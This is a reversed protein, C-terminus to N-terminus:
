KRKPSMPIVDPDDDDDNCGIPQIIKEFYSKEEPNLRSGKPTSNYKSHKKLENIIDTSDKADLYKVLFSIAIYNDNDQLSKFLQIFDKGNFTSLFDCLHNKDKRYVSLPITCLTNTIWEIDWCDSSSKKNKISSAIFSFVTILCPIQKDTKLAQVIKKIMEEENRKLLFPILDNFYNNPIENFGKPIQRDIFDILLDDNESSSHRFVLRLVHILNNQLPFCQQAREAVRKADFSFKGIEEEKNKILRTDLYEAFASVEKNDPNTGIITSFFCTIYSGFEEPNISRSEEKILPLISKLSISSETNKKTTKYNQYIAEFIPKTDPIEKTIDRQCDSVEKLNGERWCLSIYKKFSEKKMVESAREKIDKKFFLPLTSLYSPSNSLLILDCINEFYGKTLDSELTGFIQLLIKLNIDNLVNKKSILQIKEYIAKANIQELHRLKTYCKLIDEYFQLFQYIRSSDETMQNAKNYAYNIHEQFDSKIFNTCNEFLREKKEKDIIRTFSRYFQLTQKRYESDSKIFYFIFCNPSHKVIASVLALHSKIADLVHQYFNKLFVHSKDKILEELESQFNPKDNTLFKLINDIKVEDTEQNSNTAASIVLSLQGPEKRPPQYTPEKRLKSANLTTTTSLLSKKLSPHATSTKSSESFNNKSYDFFSTSYGGKKKSKNENYERMMKKFPTYHLNSKTIMSEFDNFTSLDVDDLKGILEQIISFLDSFNLSAFLQPRSETYALTIIEMIKHYIITFPDEIIDDDNMSQYLQILNLKKNKFYKDINEKIIDHIMEYIRPTQRFSYVNGKLLELIPICISIDDKSCCVIIDCLGEIIEDHSANLLNEYVKRVQNYLYYLSEKQQNYKEIREVLDEAFEKSQKDFQSHCLVNNFFTISLTVDRQISRVFNIVPETFMSQTHKFALNDNLIFDINVKDTYDLEKFFSVINNKDNVKPESKSNDVEEEGTEVEDVNLIFDEKIYFLVYASSSQQQSGYAASEVDETSIPCVEIDNFKWWQSNPKNAKKKIFSTYHGGIATGSHIVIGVLKYNTNTPNQSIKDINLDTPFTFRDNLKKREYTKMLYEFRKLHIVLIPPAEEIKVSKYVTISKNTADDQMQLEETAIISQLSEELNKMDKIPVSLDIFAESDPHIVDGNKRTIINILKGTFLKKIPGPLADILFGFFEVADHQERTNILEGLWGHWQKIFPETDCFKRDSYHMQLFLSQLLNLESDKPFKYTSMLYQVPYLHYLQQIISNFFCTAGLNRLGIFPSERMFLEPSYNWHDDIDKNSSFLKELYDETVQTHCLKINDILKQQTNPDSNTFVISVLLEEHKKTIEKLEENKKSFTNTIMFIIEVLDDISPKVEDWKLMSCCHNLFSSDYILPPVQFDKKSEIDKIITSITKSLLKVYFPLNIQNPELSQTAIEFLYKPDLNLSKAYKNWSRRSVKNFSQLFKDKDSDIIEKVDDVFYRLCKHFLSFSSSNAWDDIVSDFFCNIIINLSPKFSDGNNHFLENLFEFYFPDQYELLLSSVVDIGGNKIFQSSEFHTPKEKEKNERVISLLSQLFYKKKIKSTYGNKLKNVFKNMSDFKNKIVKEDTPLINLLKEIVNLHKDDLEDSSLSLLKEVFGNQMLLLSMPMEYEDFQDHNISFSFYDKDKIGLEFLKKKEDSSKTFKTSTVKKEKKRIAIRQLLCLLTSDPKIHIKFEFEDNRVCNIIICDSSYKHREHEFDEPDVNVESIKIFELIIHLVNYNNIFIEDNLKSEIFSFLCSRIPKMTTFMQILYEESLNTAQDNRSSAFANFLIDVYKPNGDMTSNKKKWSSFLIKNEFGILSILFDIFVKTIKTTFSQDRAQEVIIDFIGNSHNMKSTDFLDKYFTWLKDDLGFSSFTLIDNKSLQISSKSFLMTAIKFIIKKNDKTMKSIIDENIEKTFIARLKNTSEIISCLVNQAFESSEESDSIKKIIEKVLIIRSQDPIIDQKYISIIAERASQDRETENLILNVKNIAKDPNSTWFKKTMKTLFKYTSSSSPPSTIYDIIHSQAEEPLSDISNAIFSFLPSQQDSDTSTSAIDYLKCINQFDLLSVRPNCMTEFFPIFLNIVVISLESNIATELFNHICEKIESNQLFYFIDNKTTCFSSITKAAIAQKEIMDSKLCKTLFNFLQIYFQYNTTNSMLEIFSTLSDQLIRSNIEHLNEIENIYNLYPQLVPSSLELINRKFYNLNASFIKFIFNFHSIKVEENDNFFSPIKKISDSNFCDKYLYEYFNSYSYSNNKLYVIAKPDFMSVLSPFLEEINNKLSFYVFKAAERFFYVVSMKSSSNSICQFHIIRKITSPFTEKYFYEIFKQPYTKENLILKLNETLSNLFDKFDGRPDLVSFFTSTWTEIDSEPTLSSFKM